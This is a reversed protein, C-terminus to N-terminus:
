LTLGGSISGDMTTIPEYGKIAVRNLSLGLQLNSILNGLSLKYRLRNEQYIEDGSSFLELRNTSNWMKYEFKIGTIALEPLNFRYERLLTITLNENDFIQDKYIFLIEDSNHGIKYNYAECIDPVIVILCFIATSFKIKAWSNVKRKVSLSYQRLKLRYFIM